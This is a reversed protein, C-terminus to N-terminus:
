APRGADFGPGLRRPVVDGRLRGRMIRPEAQARDRVPLFPVYGSVSGDEEAWEDVADEDANVLRVWKDERDSAGWEPDATAAMAEAIDDGPEGPREDDTAPIGIGWVVWDRVEDLDNRAAVDREWSRVDGAEAKRTM